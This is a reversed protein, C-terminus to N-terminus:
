KNAEKEERTLNRLWIYQNYHRKIFPVKVIEDMCMVIYVAMVPWHFVFCGLLALPVAFCWTAFFVSVADYKSDGGAPFVGVTFVTNYSYAFMYAAHFILMQILYVKAQPELVYFFYVLPGALCILGINILGGWLAVGWFRKGLEKAEDLRNQGLLGGIMIGGGASLGTTLCQILQQAVGTVSYAATADTGLHGLIFSHMTMSLGWSLASALVGPIIKWADKEYAKSFYFLAHRDLHVERKKKAWVLCWILAIAEVAITSWASGNAGLGKFSGIGYILFFDATMDVIVTVASIWVSMKAHGSVKMMMLFCQGVGAFLYSFSVIRLYEGGIRILETEPTLIRMLQEPICFALLFFVFSIAAVYRVAMGLFRKANTYDKKGWYQAVLVGAAGIVAGSFLSMVFSVQNALSVAAIADQTLRGLMLADSAGVLANLLSQLALPIALAMLEKTFQKRGTLRMPETGDKKM